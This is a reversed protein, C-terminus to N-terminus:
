EMHLVCVGPPNGILRRDAFTDPKLKGDEFTRISDCDEKSKGYLPSLDLYSSSDNQNPDKSNTWFLDVDMSLQWERNGDRFLCEGHIVITAWYWLISSVNNPNKKFGDRAMVAEYILEPDPLAGM